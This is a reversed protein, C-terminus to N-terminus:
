ALENFLKEWKAWTADEDSLTNFLERRANTVIEMRLDEDTALREVYYAFEEKDNWLFGTRGHAILEKWGWSNEAVVPVGYAMAELATCPRNEKAGGNIQAMCHLSRYFTERDEAGARLCEAWEPPKGLKEGIRNTWGMMRAKLPHKVGGYIDWTKASWKDGAPRSLRGIVFPEGKKHPTPCFSCEDAPMPYPIKVVEDEGYGAKLLEPLLSMRQYESDIIYRDPRHGNSYAITEQPFLWCMCGFWLTKCGREKLRPLAAFFNVNCFSAVIAGDLAEIEDLDNGGWPIWDVGEAQMSNQWDGGGNTPLFTVEIGHKRWLRVTRWCHPGAGGVRHIQGLIYVRTMSM